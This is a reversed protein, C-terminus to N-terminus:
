FGAAEGGYQKPLEKADIFPVLAKKLAHTGTGVVSMKALTAAPLLPKFIWFIWNMLTPVNVFFKRYQVGPRNLYTHIRQQIVHSRPSSVLLEPYHSSFIATAESAAAKSKADRSTLSVGLYDHIQVAQDIENFDLLAVSKEQFAVRWRIFRQTDSFVEAINDGGYINYVVPRGDKDRGYIHGVNGFVDQPFEEKLLADINISTRWRLTSVLMDRAEPVSLNRARLFKVLIVSVRPDAAANNPDIRVGWFTIPTDKAKPDDPFGDAFVQPLEARFKKLAAWEAETFRKTLTNQAEPSEKADATPAATSTGANLAGAIPVPDAETSSTTQPIAAPTVPVPPSVASPAGPIAPTTASTAGPEPAAATLTQTTEATKNDSAPTAEIGASPTSVPADTPTPAASSTVEAM